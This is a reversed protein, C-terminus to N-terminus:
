AIKHTIFAIENIVKQREDNSMDEYLGLASILVYALEEIIQNTVHM